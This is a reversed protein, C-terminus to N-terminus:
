RITIPILRAWTFLTKLAPPHRSRATPTAPHHAERENGNCWLSIYKDGIGVVSNGGRAMQDVLVATNGYNGMRDCYTPSYNSYINSTLSATGLDAGYTNQAQAWDNEIDGPNDYFLMGTSDWQYGYSILDVNPAMGRWQLASGGQTASNAGSGGVTGAM